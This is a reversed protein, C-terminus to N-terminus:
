LAQSRKRERASPVEAEILQAQARAQMSRVLEGLANKRAATPLMDIATRGDMSKLQWVEPTALKSFMAEHHLLQAAAELGAAELSAKSIAFFLAPKGGEQQGMVMVGASIAALGSRPALIEVARYCGAAAAHMLATLGYEDVAHPDCMRLMREYVPHHRPAADSGGMQGPCLMAITMRTSGESDDVADVSAGQDLLRDMEGHGSWRMARWLQADLEERREPDLKARVAWCIDSEVGEFPEGQGVAANEARSM